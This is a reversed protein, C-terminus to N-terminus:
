WGPVSLWDESRHVRSAVELLEDQTRYRLKSQWFGSAWEPLVPSHGTVDFDIQVDDPLPRTLWLPHNHAKSFVLEGNEIRYPGGTNFWDNGLEARDFTDGFPAALRPAGGKPCSCSAGLLFLAVARANVM